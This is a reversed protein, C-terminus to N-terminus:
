VLGHNLLLAYDVNSCEQLGKEVAEEHCKAYHAKFFELDYEFLYECKIRKTAEVNPLNQYYGACKVCYRIEACKFGKTSVYVKEVIAAHFVWGNWGSRREDFCYAPFYVVDGPKINKAKKM